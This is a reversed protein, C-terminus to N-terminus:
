EQIEDVIKEMANDIHSIKDYLDQLHGISWGVFAFGLGLSIFVLAQSYDTWQVIYRYSFGIAWLTGAGILFKSLFTM